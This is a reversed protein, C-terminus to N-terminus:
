KNLKFIVGAFIGFYDAGEGTGYRVEAFGDMKPSLAKKAGGLLVIGIGTSSTSTDDYYGYYDENPGTYDSSVKGIVLGLGGGAYPSFSAGKKQSFFYRALATIYIQSYSWDWHAGVDYSKSWYLLEAGFAIQPTLWGLDAAAGFGITSGISSEISVFGVQAGIGNLGINAKAFVSVAFLVVVLITLTRLTKM